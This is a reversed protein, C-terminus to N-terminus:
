ELTRGLRVQAGVIVEISHTGAPPVFERGTIEMLLRGGADYATWRRMPEGEDFGSAPARWAGDVDHELRATMPAMIGPEVVSPAGFFGTHVPTDRWDCHVHAEYEVLFGDNATCASELTALPVDVPDLDFGDGYIHRSSNVGGIMLNYGPARYGSNVVIPGIQDRLDQLYAVAHPQVVAYRGKWAQAMEDLTFNPAIQASPDITELDLYRVPARYNTNGQYPAPYDYGDPLMPLAIPFCVTWDEQPGPYCAEDLNPEGDGDGDGTSDGDGDGDGDGTSDGDGDGDGTTPDGDGDGDGDGPGITEDGFGEDGAECECPLYGSGDLSCWSVSAQGGPCDCMVGQGPECLFGTDEYGTGASCGLAYGLPAALALCLIARSLGVQMSDHDPLSAPHALRCIPQDLPRNEQQTSCSRYYNDTYQDSSHGSLWAWLAVASFDMRATLKCVTGSRASSCLM